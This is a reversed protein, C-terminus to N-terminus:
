THHPFSTIQNTPMTLILCLGTISLRYAEPLHYPAGTWKSLTLTHCTGLHFRLYSPPLCFHSMPPSCPSLLASHPSPFHNLTRNDGADPDLWVCSESGCCATNNQRQSRTHSAQCTLKVEHARTKEHTQCPCEVRGQLTLVMSPIFHSFM